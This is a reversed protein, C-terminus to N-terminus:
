MTKRRDAGLKAKTEGKKKRQRVKRKVKGGQGGLEGVGGGEDGPRTWIFQM